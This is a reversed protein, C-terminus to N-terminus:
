IGTSGFGGIGRATEDLDDTINWNIQEYRAIIMQAIKMGRTITFAEENLNILSVFIEGRYDTDITGPANIITVGNKIALGSRPRIQAEFGKPLAIAIGTPILKRAMPCLTVPENEPIAAILDMGVSDVTAYSPLPLENYHALKKVAVLINGM